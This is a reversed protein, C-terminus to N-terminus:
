DKINYYICENHKSEKVEIQKTTDGQRDRDPMTGNSNYDNRRIYETHEKRDKNNDYDNRMM